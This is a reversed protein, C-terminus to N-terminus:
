KTKAIEAANKGAIRGSTSSWGMMAGTRRVEYTDGWMGGVEAGVAFVADAVPEGDANVVQITDPNIALGGYSIFSGPVLRAAIYPPTFCPAMFKPDKYFDDDHHQMVFGNYRDVTAQLREGDVGMQLGLEPLTDAMFVHEYGQEMLRQVDALIDIKTGVPVNTGIGLDLGNEKLYMCFGADFIAWAKHGPQMYINNGALPFDFSACEDCFRDGRDNVWIVPSGAAALTIGMEQVGHGDEAPMSQFLMLGFGKTDAGLEIGMDIGEGVKNLYDTASGVAEPDYNTWQAIKEKSNSFGGGGIIVAKCTIHVPTGDAEVAQFGVVKGDEVEIKKGTTNLHIDVGMEKATDGYGNILAQGREEGEYMPIHWCHPMSPSIAALWFKIPTSEKIWKITETSERIATRVVPGDILGHAHQWSETYMEDETYVFSGMKQEYTNIAFLGEAHRAAGGLHDEKELLIVDVGQQRASIASALGSNGGGVVVVDTKLEKVNGM